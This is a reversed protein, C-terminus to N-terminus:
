EFEDEEIPATRLFESTADLAMVTVGQPAKGVFYDGHAAEWKKDDKSSTVVVIVVSETGWELALEKAKRTIRDM